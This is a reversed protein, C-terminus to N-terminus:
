VLLGGVLKDYFAARALGQYPILWISVLPLAFPTPILLVLTLDLLIWGLFSLDLLFLDLKKGSMLRKSEVICQFVGKEPADLLIYYAQRFMYSAVVGPFIFLVYLPLTILFTLFSLLLIKGFYLFGDFVDKYDGAQRRSIKMCYGIYGVRVIQMLFALVLALAAGSPAFASLLMRIRPAEGSLLRENLGALFGAIGVFRFQFESMVADLAIFIISIVILKPANEAILRRAGSKLESIPM